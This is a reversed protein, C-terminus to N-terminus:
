DKRKKDLEEAMVSLLKEPKVPKELYADASNAEADLRNETTPFGTIMIKVMRRNEESFEKLLNTGDADPLRVDILSADYSNKRLKTLAEEGSKATDTRYGNKNLIRIFTRMISQDDDVILVTANNGTWSVEM